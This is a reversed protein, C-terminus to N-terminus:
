GATTDMKVVEDAQKDFATNKKRETLFADIRQKLEVDADLSM